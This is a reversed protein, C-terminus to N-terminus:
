VKLSPVIGWFERVEADKLRLNAYHLQMVPLSHGNEWAVIGPDRIEALRYSARTHRLVDSGVDVKAAEQIKWYHRRNFKAVPGKRAAAPTLSLWAALCDAM